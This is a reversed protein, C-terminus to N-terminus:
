QSPEIKRLTWKGTSSGRPHAIRYTGLGESQSITGKMTGSLLVPEKEMDAHGTIYARLFNKEIKGELKCRLEGTGGIHDEIRGSFEGAIPCIHKQIEGRRLTMKLTGKTHGTLQLEWTEAETDVIDIPEKHAASSHFSSLALVFLFVAILKNKFRKM